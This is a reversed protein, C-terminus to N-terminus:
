RGNAVGRLIIATAMVALPVTNAITDANLQAWCALKRLGAGLGHQYEQRLNM